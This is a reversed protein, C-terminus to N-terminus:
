RKNQRKREEKIFQILRGIVGIVLCYYAYEAFKNAMLENNYALQCAACILLIMFSLIFLAPIDTLFEKISKLTKYPIRIIITKGKRKVEIEMM